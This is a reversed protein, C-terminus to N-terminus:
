FESARIFGSTKLRNMKGKLSGYALREATDMTSAKAEDHIVHLYLDKKARARILDAGENFWASADTSSSATSIHRVGDMVLTYDAAARCDFQIADGYVCYENPTSLIPSDQASMIYAYDRPILDIYNNDSLKRRIRDFKMWRPTISTLSMSALSTSLTVSSDKM